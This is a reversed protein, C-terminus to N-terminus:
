ESPFCQASDRGSQCQIMDKVTENMEQRLSAIAKTNEEVIHRLQEIPDVPSTTTNGIASADSAVDFDQAWSEVAVTFFLAYVIMKLFVRKLLSRFKIRNRSRIPYGM